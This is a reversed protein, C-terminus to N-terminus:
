AIRRAWAVRRLPGPEDADFPFCTALLLMQARPRSPLAFRDWEVTQLATVEFRAVSGDVRELTLEDGVELERMWAFHTERHAGLLTVHRGHRTPFEAPGFAMAEGSGGSLVIDSKGLRDATLRAVASADAWPWPRIATGSALGQEFSHALLIQAVVAKVPYWAASIAKAGGVTLLFGALALLLARRWGRGGEPSIRLRNM